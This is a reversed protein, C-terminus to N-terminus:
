ILHKEFDLIENTEIIEEIDGARLSKVFMPRYAKPIYVPQGKCFSAMPSLVEDARDQTMVPPFLTVPGDADGTLYAIAGGPTYEDNLEDLFGSEQDLTANALILDDIRQHAKEYTSARAECFATAETSFYNIRSGTFNSHPHLIHADALAIDGIAVAAEHALTRRLNHPSARVGDGYVGLWDLLPKSVDTLHSKQNGKQGAFIYENNTAKAQAILRNLLLGVMPTIPTLNPSPEPNNKIRKGDTYLILPKSPDINIQNLKISLLAQKREGTLLCLVLFDKHIQPVPATLLRIWFETLSGSPLHKDSRNREHVAGMRQRLLHPIDLKLEGRVDSALTNYIKIIQKKVKAGISWNEEANPYAKSLKDCSTEDFELFSANGIVAKIKKLAWRDNYGDHVERLELKDALRQEGLKVIPIQLIHHAQHRRKQQNATLKPDDGARIRSYFEQHHKIAQKLKISPFPGHTKSTVKQSVPHKVDSEWAKRGTPHVVLRLGAVGAVTARFKSQRPGLKEVDVDNTVVSKKPRLYATKLAM